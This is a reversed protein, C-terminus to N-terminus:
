GEQPAPAGFVLVAREEGGIVHRSTTESVRRYGAREATRLSAANSPEISLEIRRVGPVTWGFATVAHLADTALGRGRAAAILSFGATARGSDLERLWLGCHGIPQDTAAEVITFSFGTGERHRSQQRHMWDLAQTDSAHAPLTGTLPVYPDDSLARVM